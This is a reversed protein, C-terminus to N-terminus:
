PARIIAQECVAQDLGEEKGDSSGTKIFLSKTKNGAWRFCAWIGARINEFM